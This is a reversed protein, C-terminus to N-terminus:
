GKGGKVIAEKAEGEEHFKQYLASKGEYVVADRNKITVRSGEIRPRIGGFPV